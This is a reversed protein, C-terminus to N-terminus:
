EEVAARVRVGMADETEDFVGVLVGNKNILYKCFDKKVRSNMMGNKAINYLWKYVDNKNPGKAKTKAAILYHANYNNVIFNKIVANSQPANGFDNTPMVIIVLSDKYLQHLQELKRYQVTDATNIATNVILVKKGAFANFNITSGDNNSASLSYFSVLTPIFYKFLMLIHQM